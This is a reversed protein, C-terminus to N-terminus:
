GRAKALAHSSLANFDRPQCVVLMDMPKDAETPVLHGPEARGMAKEGTSFVGLWM